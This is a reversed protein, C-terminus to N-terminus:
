AGQRGIAESGSDANKRNQIGRGRTEALEAVRRNSKKKQKQTNIDPDL